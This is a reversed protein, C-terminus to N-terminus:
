FPRPAPGVVPQGVVQQVPQQQPSGFYDERSGGGGTGLKEQGRGVFMVKNLFASVGVNPTTYAFFNVGVHVFDGDNIPELLPQMAQDMLDPPQSSKASFYYYGNLNPNNPDEKLLVNNGTPIKGDLENAILSNYIALIQQVQPDTKHIVILAQYKPDDGPRFAKPTTLHPYMVRVNRIGMETASLAM